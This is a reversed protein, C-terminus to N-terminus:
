SLQRTPEDRRRLESSEHAPEGGLYGARGLEQLQASVANRQALPVGGLRDEATDQGFVGRVRLRDRLVSERAAICGTSRGDPAVVRARAAAALAVLMAMSRVRIRRRRRKLFFERLRNRAMLAPRVFVKSCRLRGIALDQRGLGVVCRSLMEEADDVVLAALESRRHRQELTGDRSLRGLGFEMVVEPEREGRRIAVALGNRFIATCERESGVVRDGPVIETERELRM